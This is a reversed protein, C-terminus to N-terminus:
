SSDTQSGDTSRAKAPETKQSIQVTGDTYRYIVASDLANAETREYDIDPDFNKPILSVYLEEASFDYGGSVFLCEFSGDSNLPVSPMDFTPKPAWIEGGKTVALAMTVAYQSFDGPGEEFWVHGSVTRGAEIGPVSDIALRPLPSAASANVSFCGVMMAIVLLLSLLKKM